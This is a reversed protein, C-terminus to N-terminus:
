KGRAARREFLDLQPNTRDARSLAKWVASETCGARRAIQPYSMRRAQYVLVRWARALPVHLYNRGHAASLKKAATEGVISILRPTPTAPVYFRLGGAAEILNVTAEVGILRVLRRTEEEKPLPLTM